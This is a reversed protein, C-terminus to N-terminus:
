GATTAILSQCAFATMPKSLAHGQAFRWGISRLADLQPADEIGTAICPWGKNASAQLLARMTEIAAASNGIEHTLGRGVKLIDPGLGAVRGLQSPGTVINDVATRVGIARLESVRRASMTLDAALDAADFELVLSPPEVDCLRLTAEVWVSLDPRRLNIGSLNVSVWNPPRVGPQQKWTALQAVATRVVHRDYDTVRGEAEVLPLFSGPPVLEGQNGWRMLAEFGAVTDDATLDHVGQFHILLETTPPLGLTIVAPGEGSHLRRVAAALRPAPSMQRPALDARGPEAKSVQAAAALGNVTLVKTHPLAARMQEVLRRGKFGGDVLVVDPYETQARAIADDERALWAVEVGPETALARRFFVVAAPDDDVLMLRIPREGRLM